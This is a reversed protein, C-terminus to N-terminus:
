VQATNGIEGDIKHEGYWFYTNNHFLVGGGHANIAVGNNDVWEKGPLFNNSITKNSNESCSFIITFLSFLVIKKYLSLLM